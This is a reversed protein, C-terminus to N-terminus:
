IMGISYIICVLHIPYWVTCPWALDTSKRKQANNHTIKSFLHVVTAPNRVTTLVEPHPHSCFVCKRLGRKLITSYIGAFIDEDSRVCSVSVPRRRSENVHWMASTLEDLPIVAEQVVCHEFFWHIQLTAFGTRCWRTYWVLYCLIVNDCSGCWEHLLSQATLQQCRRYMFRTIQSHM